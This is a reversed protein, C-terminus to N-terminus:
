ENHKSGPVLVNASSVDSAGLDNDEELESTSSETAHNSRTDRQARNLQEKSAGEALLRNYVDEHDPPAQSCKMAHKLVNALGKYKVVCFPCKQIDRARGFSGRIGSPPATMHNLRRMHSTMSSATDTAYSCAPCQTPPRMDARQTDTINPCRGPQQVHRILAKSSSMSKNCYKCVHETAVENDSNHKLDPPSNNNSIYTSDHKVYSSTQSNVSAPPTLISKERQLPADVDIPAQQPLIVGTTAEVPPTEIKAYFALYATNSNKPVFYDYPKVEHDSVNAWLWQVEGRVGTERRVDATYHGSDASFGEHHIIGTIRYKHGNVNLVSNPRVDAMIKTGSSRFRKFHIVMIKPTTVFSIERRAMGSVECTTCKWELRENSLFANLCDETSQESNNQLIAVSTKWTLDVRDSEGVCCGKPCSLRSRIKCQFIDSVPSCKEVDNTAPALENHLLQLLQGLMEDADEQKNRRFEKIKNEVLKNNVLTFLHVLEKECLSQDIKQFIDALAAAVSLHRIAHPVHAAVDLTIQRIPSANLLQLVSNMYCSNGINQLGGACQPIVEKDRTESAPPKVPPVALPVALPTAPKAKTPTDSKVYTVIYDNGSPVFAKQIIKKTDALYWLNQHMIYTLFHGEETAKGQPQGNASGTHIIVTSLHYSTGKFVVNEPINAVRLDKEGSIRRNIEITIADRVNTVYTLVNWSTGFCHECEHGPVNSAIIPMSFDTSGQVIPIKLVYPKSDAKQQRGCQACDREESVQIRAKAWDDIKFKKIIETFVAGPTLYVSSNDKPHGLVRKVETLALITQKPSHRNVLNRLTQHGKVKSFTRPLHACLGELLMTVALLACSTGAPLPLPPNQPLTGNLTDVPKATSSQKGHTVSNVDVPIPPIIPVFKKAEDAQDDDVKKATDATDQENTKKKVTAAAKKAKKTITEKHEPGHTGGGRHAGSAGRGRGVSDDATKNAVSGSSTPADPMKLRDILTNIQAANLVSRIIVLMADCVDNTQRHNYPSPAPASANNQPAPERFKCDAQVHGEEKCTWCVKGYHCEYFRHGNEKCNWCKIVDDNNTQLHSHPSPAPASAKNQRSSERYKCHSQVHGERKCTWCVKGYHCEYFRHGHEMCNWCETVEDFTAGYLADADVGEHPAPPERDRPRLELIENFVKRHRMHNDHFHRRIFRTVGTKIVDDPYDAKLRFEQISRRACTIFTSLNHCSQRANELQGIITGICVDLPICSSFAPFRTVGNPFRITDANKDIPGFEIDPTTKVHMGLFEAEELGRLEKVETVAYQAATPMVNRDDTLSDDIYRFAFYQVAEAVTEFHDLETKACTLTALEPSCPVGMGLGAAQRRIKGGFTVLASAVSYTLLESIESLAYGDGMRSWNSTEVKKGRLVFDLRLEEIVCGLKIAVKEFALTIMFLSNEIVTEQDLSTYMAGMDSQQMKFTNGDKKLVRAASVFHSVSNIAIFKRPEDSEEQDFQLLDIIARGVQSMTTALDTMYNKPKVKTAIQDAAKNVKTKKDNMPHVNTLQRPHAQNHTEEIEDPHGFTQIFESSQFNSISPGIQPQNPDTAFRADRATGVIPRFAMKRKFFKPVIYVYPRHTPQPDEKLRLLKRMHKTRRDIERIEGPSVDKFATGNFHDNASKRYQHRCIFALSQANHDIPTIVFVDKLRDILVDTDGPLRCHPRKKSNKMLLENFRSCVEDRWSQINDDYPSDEKKCMYRAFYTVHEKFYEKTKSLSIPIRLKAGKELHPVLCAFDPHQKCVTTAPAVVHGGWLNVGPGSFNLCPCTGEHPPSDKELAEAAFNQLLMKFTPRTVNCIRVDERPFRFPWSKTGLATKACNDMASNNFCVKFWVSKDKDNKALERRVTLMEEISTRFLSGDLTPTALIALRLTYMTHTKMRNIESLFREHRHKFLPYMQALIRLGKELREDAAKCSDVHHDDSERFRHAPRSAGKRTKRTREQANMEPSFIRIFHHEEETASVKIRALPLIIYHSPDPDASIMASLGTGKKAHRQYVHNKFRDRFIEQTTQGVYIAGSPSHIVTYVVNKLRLLDLSSLSHFEPDCWKNWKRFWTKIHRSRITQNTATHSRMKDVRHAFANVEFHPVIMDLDVDAPTVDDLSNGAFVPSSRLRPKARERIEQPQFRPVELTGNGEVPTRQRLRKKESKARQAKKRSRRRSLVEDVRRTDVHGSSTSAGFLGDTCPSGNLPVSELEHEELQSETDLKMLFVTHTAVAVVMYSVFPPVCTTVIHVFTIMLTTTFIVVGYWFCLQVLSQVIEVLFYKVFVEVQLKSPRDRELASRSGPLVKWSLRTVHRRRRHSTATPVMYTTDLVFIYVGTKQVVESFILLFLLIQIFRTSLIPSRRRSPTPWPHM